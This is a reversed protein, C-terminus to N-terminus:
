VFEEDKFHESVDASEWGSPMQDNRRVAQISISFRKENSYNVWERIHADGTAKYHYGRLVFENGSVINLLDKPATNTSQPFTPMAPYPM